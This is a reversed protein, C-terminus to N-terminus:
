CSCRCGSVWQDIGNVPLYGQAQVAQVAQGPTSCAPIHLAEDAAQTAGLCSLLLLSLITQRM